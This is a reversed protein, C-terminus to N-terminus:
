KIKVKKEKKGKKMKGESEKAHLSADEPNLHSDSKKVEEPKPIDDESYMSGKWVGVNKQKSAQKERRPLKTTEDGLRVLVMDQDTAKESEHEGSIHVRIPEGKSRVLM